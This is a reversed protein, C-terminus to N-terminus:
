EHWLRLSKGTPSIDSWKGEKLTAIIDCEGVPFDGEEYFSNVGETPEIEYRDYGDLEMGKGYYMGVIDKGTNSAEGLSFHFSTKYMDALRQAEELAIRAIDLQFNITLAEIDGENLKSM